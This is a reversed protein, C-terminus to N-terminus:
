PWVAGGFPSPLGLKGPHLIGNPDMAAKLDVLTEFAGGLSPALFRARNLGIGHHHSIAGGRATTAEMVARWAETYYAEAWGLDDPAPGQGAFTFYLCAGDSYAHSQHASAALTGDLARLRAVADDYLPLLAAWRAAIEITDVVIHRRALAALASVDNRHELWRQVLSEDLPEVEGATCAEAVIRATAEVLISDGEDLVILVCTDDVGFTRASEVEDYLRLV